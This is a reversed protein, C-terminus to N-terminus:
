PNIVAYYVVRRLLTRSVTIHTRIRIYLQTQGREVFISCGRLSFTENDTFPFVKATETTKGELYVKPLVSEHTQLLCTVIFHTFM